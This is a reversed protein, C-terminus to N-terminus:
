RVRPWVMRGVIRLDRVRDRPITERSYSPNESILLVAGDFLQQVRKVLRKGNLELVYIDDIDFQDVGEDIIITDGDILVPAM